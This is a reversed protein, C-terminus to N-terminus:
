GSPKSKNRMTGWDIQLFVVAENPAGDDVTLRAHQALFTTLEDLDIPSDSLVDVIVKAEYRHKSKEPTSELKIRRLDQAALETDAYLLGADQDESWANGTWYGRERDVLRFRPFELSSGAWEVRCQHSENM